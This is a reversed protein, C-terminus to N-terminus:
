YKIVKKSIVGGNTDSIKVFYIGKAWDITTVNLNEENGNLFTTKEYIRNGLLDFVEFKASFAINSKIKLNIIDQNIPNPYIVFYDLANLSKISSAATTLFKRKESIVGVSHSNFPRVRWYYNVNMKLGILVIETKDTIYDAEITSFSPQRSLEVVYHTANEAKEWKLLVNDINVEEDNLPQILLIPEDNIPPLPTQNYLLNKMKNKLVTRMVNVQDSSFRSQCETNSYSMFLTGDARGTAGSPDTLIIDSEHNANCPWDFSFYDANTDCIKDSAKQCNSKDVLEVEAVIPTIINSPEDQFWKSEEITVKTPAITTPKYTTAEWGFFTHPLKLMHGLEHTLIHNKGNTFYKSMLIGAYFITYGSHGSAYEAIYVNLTNAKNHKTMLNLGDQAYTPNNSKTDKIFDINGEIYFQIKSAMFDINVQRFNDLILNTQKAKTGDDNSISHITLPVYLITDGGNRLFNLDAYNYDQPLM